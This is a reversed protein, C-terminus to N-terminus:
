YSIFIVLVLSLSTAWKSYSSRFTSKGFGGPSVIAETVDSEHVWFFKHLFELVREDGRRKDKVFCDPCLGSDPWVSTNKKVRQSVSNHFRWLWLGTHSWNIGSGTVVCRDFLCGDFGALFHDRCESCSFFLDAITRIGNMADIPRIEGKSAENGAPGLSFLHLLRWLACSYTQCTRFSPEIESPTLSKTQKLLSTWSERTLPSVQGGLADHLNRCDSRVDPLSLINFCLELLSRLGQIKEASLITEKGRFVETNLMISLATTADLNIALPTPPNIPNPLIHAKPAEAPTSEFKTLYPMRGILRMRFSDLPHIALEKWESKWSGTQTSIVTYVVPFFAINRERFVDFNDRKAADIASFRVWPASRFSKAIEEYYPAFKRCHGCLSSYFLVVFNPKQPGPSAEITERYGTLSLDSVFGNESFLAAGCPLSRYLILLAIGIFSFSDRRM